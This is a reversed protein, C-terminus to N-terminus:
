LLKEDAEFSGTRNGYVFCIVYLFIYAIIALIHSRYRFKGSM